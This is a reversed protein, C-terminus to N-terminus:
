DLAEERDEELVVGARERHPQRWHLDDADRDGFLVRVVEALDDVPELDFTHAGLEVVAVVPHLLLDARVRGLLHGQLEDRPLLITGTPGHGEAEAVASLLVAYTSSFRKGYLEPWRSTQGYRWTAMYSSAVASSTASIAASVWRAICTRRVVDCQSPKLMPM